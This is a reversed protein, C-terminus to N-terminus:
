ALISSHTAMEKELPDEQGQSQFQTEQTKENAPPKRCMGYFECKKTHEYLQAAGGDLTLHPDCWVWSFGTCM